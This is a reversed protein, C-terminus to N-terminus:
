ASLDHLKGLSKSHNVTALKGIGTHYCRSCNLNGMGNGEPVRPARGSSIITKLTEGLFKQSEEHEDRGKIDNLRYYIALIRNCHKGSLPPGAPGAVIRLLVM